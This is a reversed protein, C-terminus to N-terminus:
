RDGLRKEDVAERCLELVQNMVTDPDFLRRAKTAAREGMAQLEVDSLVAARELGRRLDEVNDPEVLIGDVGDELIEDYSARRTGIVVKGFSMAELLVNPLNDILSPAVIFRARQMVAFLDSQIMSPYVVLRGAADGLTRRIYEAMSPGDPGPGDGGVLVASLDPHRQFISGLVQALVHVGKVGLLSSSFLLYREPLRYRRIVEAWAASPHGAFLPTRIVPISRRVRKGYYGAVVESPAYIKLAQKVTRDELRYRLRDVRRMTQFNLKACLPMYSSVRVVLPVNRDAAIGEALGELQTALVVDIEGRRHLERVTNLVTRSLDLWMLEWGTARQVWRRLRGQLYPRPAVTLVRPVAGNRTAQGAGEKVLVTVPHGHDVLWNAMKAFARGTGGRDYDYGPTPYECTLLCIKV